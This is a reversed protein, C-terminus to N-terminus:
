SQQSTSQIPQGVDLPDQIESSPRHAEASKDSAGSGSSTGLSGAGANDGVAGGHEEVPADKDDTSPAKQQDAAAVSTSSDAPLLRM